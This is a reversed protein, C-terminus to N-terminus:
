ILNHTTFCLNSFSKLTEVNTIIVIHQVVQSAQTFQKTQVQTCLLLDEIHAPQSFSFGPREELNIEVANANEVAPLEPQSLCFRTLNEDDMVQRSDTEDPRIYGEISGAIM